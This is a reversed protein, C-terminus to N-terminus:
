GHDQDRPRSGSSAVRTCLYRYPAHQCVGLHHTEVTIPSHTPPNIPSHTFWTYALSRTKYKRGCVCIDTFIGM